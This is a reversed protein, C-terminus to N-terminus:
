AEPCTEGDPIFAWAQGVSHASFKRVMLLTSVRMNEVVLEILYTPKGMARTVHVPPRKDYRFYPDQPRLLPVGSDRWLWASPPNDRMNPLISPQQHGPERDGGHKHKTRDSIRISQLGLGVEYQM